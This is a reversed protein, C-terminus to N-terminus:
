AAVERQRPLTSIPMLVDRSTWIAQPHGGVSAILGKSQVVDIVTWGAVDYAKGVPFVVIIVDHTGIKKVERPQVGFWGPLRSSRVHYPGGVLDYRSDLPESVPLGTVISAAIESRVGVSRKDRSNPVGARDPVGDFAAVIRDLREEAVAEDEDSLRVLVGYGVQLTSRQVAM